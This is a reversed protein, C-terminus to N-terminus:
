KTARRWARKVQEDSLRRRLPSVFFGANRDAVLSAPVDDAVPGDSGSTGGQRSLEVHRKSRSM